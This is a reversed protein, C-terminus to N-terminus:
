PEWFLSNSRIGLLVKNKHENILERANVITIRFLPEIDDGRYSNTTKRHDWLVVAQDPERLNQYALGEKVRPDMLHLNNRMRVRWIALTRHNKPNGQQWEATTMAM